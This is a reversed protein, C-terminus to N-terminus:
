YKSSSLSKMEGKKNKFDSIKFYPRYSSCRASVRLRCVQNQEKESELMIRKQFGMIGENFEDEDKQSKNNSTVSKISIRSDNMKNSESIMESARKNNYRRASGELSSRNRYSDRERKQDEKDVQRAMSPMIEDKDQKERKDSISLKSANKNTNNDKDDNNENEPNEVKNVKKVIEPLQTVM